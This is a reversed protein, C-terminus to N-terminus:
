RVKILVRRYSTLAPLGDDTVELVVHLTRGSADEPVSIIAVPGSAGQIELPGYRSPEEYLWWRYALADGDPDTSAGADLTVRDGPPADRTLLAAGAEDDVFVIPHHNAEGYPRVCWDM